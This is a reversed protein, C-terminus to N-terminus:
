NSFNNYMADLSDGRSQGTSDGLYRDSGGLNQRLASEETIYGDLKDKDAAFIWHDIKDASGGYIAIPRITMFDVEGCVENFLQNHARLSMTQQEKKPLGCHSTIIAMRRELNPIKRNKNRLKDEAEMAAKLDPSIYSDDYHSFNQYLIIRRIDEFEKATIKIDQETDCLIPKGRENFQFTPSKINLCLSLINVFKAVSIENILVVKILFELYSMSIINADPLSNKDISIIDVSAMFIESKKLDIPTITVIGQKLKYPVPEDFYFYARELAKIDM